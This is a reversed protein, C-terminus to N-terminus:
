DEEVTFEEEASVLVFTTSDSFEFKWARRRYVGLSQFRVVIERDGLEGMSVELPEGWEGPEDRWYLLGIPAPSVDDQGRRFALRVERCHKLRDTGRNHFGTSIYAVIRGGLDTAADFTYMGIKGESTGVVNEGTDARLHHATVPMASWNNNGANWGSWQSWGAGKQYAFTRGDSPFSWVLMDCHGTLVRYGFCDSVDEMAELVSHIPESIVDLSRGDSLVFRRLHDLWAFQQDVKVVSYPATLGSERANAPTYIFPAADPGYVQLTSTGFVFVENTNEGLAAVPDPRSEATFFSSEGAGNWEEHGTIDTGASPSSFNVKTRDVDVDNVLLKSANAIIHSARPPSGGLRESLNSDRDVKQVVDGAAIVVLQETEAFVPREEGSLWGLPTGSLSTAGGSGLLYIPRATQAAAVAYLKGALNGAQTAFLGDIGASDVVTTPADRYTSIGPRKRVAGRGDVAVNMVLPAAGALEEWGSQQAPIFPIPAATM